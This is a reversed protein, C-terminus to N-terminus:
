RVLGNSIPTVVDPMGNKYSVVPVRLGIKAAWGSQAPTRSVSTSASAISSAPNKSSVVNDSLLTMTISM